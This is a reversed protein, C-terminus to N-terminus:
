WRYSRRTRSCHTSDMRSSGTNRQSAGHLRPTRGAGGAAGRGGATRGGPERPHEAPDTQVKRGTSQGGDLRSPGYVNSHSLWQREM